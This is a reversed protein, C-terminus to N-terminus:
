VSTRAVRLKLSGKHGMHCLLFILRLMPERGAWSSLCSMVGDGSAVVKLELVERMLRLEVLLPLPPCAKAEVGRWWRKFNHVHKNASYVM